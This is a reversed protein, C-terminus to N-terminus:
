IMLDKNCYFWTGDPSIPMFRDYFERFNEIPSLDEFEDPYFAKALLQLVFFNDIGTAIDGDVVCLKGDKVAKLDSWGARNVYGEIIRRKAENTLNVDFGTRAAGSVEDSYSFGELIIIDPDAKILYEPNIEGYDKVMGDAINSGGAAEVSLAWGAHSATSEYGSPGTVSKEFYVTPKPGSVTKLKNYVIDVQENYYDVIEKAREEKGLLKGLISVSKQYNDGIYPNMYFDVFVVPIGAKELQEMNPLMDYEKAWLPLILVDPHLSIVTEESFTSTDINGIQSLDKIKPHDRAYAEYLAPYYKALGSDLGTIYSLFDNGAVAAFANMCPSDAIVVSEIPLHLTVNRGAIDTIMSEGSPEDSASGIM